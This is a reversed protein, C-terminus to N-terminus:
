GRSIVRVVPILKDDVYVVSGNEKNNALEWNAGKEFDANMPSKKTTDKYSIYTPVIM